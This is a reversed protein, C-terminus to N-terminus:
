SFFLDVFVLCFCTFANISCQSPKFSTLFPSFLLSALLSLFLITLLWFCIFERMLWTVISMRHHSDAVCDFQCDATIAVVEYFWGPLHRSLIDWESACENWGWVKFEIRIQTSSFVSLKVKSRFRLNCELWVFISVFCLLAFSFIFFFVIEIIWWIYVFHSM